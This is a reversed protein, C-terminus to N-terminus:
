PKEFRKTVYVGIWFAVIAFLIMGGFMYPVVDHEYAWKLLTVFGWVIALGTMIAGFFVVTSLTAHKIAQRNNMIKVSRIKTKM